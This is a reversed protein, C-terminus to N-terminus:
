PGPFAQKLLLGHGPPGAIDLETVEQRGLLVALLASGSGALTATPAAIRGGHWCDANEVSVSWSGPGDTRRFLWSGNIDQDADARQHLAPLMEIMSPLFDTILAAPWDAPGYGLNLDVHHVEVDLWRQLAVESVTVPGRRTHVPAAWDDSALEALATELRDCADALDSCLTAVTQGRGKAIEEERQNDGGPYMRGGSGDVASRIGRLAAEAGYRLHAALMDRSWNPLHTPERMMEDTLGAVSGLLREHSEGLHVLREGPTM